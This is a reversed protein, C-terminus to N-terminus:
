SLELHIGLKVRSRQALRKPSHETGSLKWVGLDSGFWGSCLVIPVCRFYEAVLLLYNPVACLSFGVELVGRPEPRTTCHM